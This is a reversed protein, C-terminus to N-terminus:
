VVGLLEVAGVVAVPRMGDRKIQARVASEDGYEAYRAYKRARVLDGSSRAARHVDGLQRMRVQSEPLWYDFAGATPDASEDAGLVEEAVQRSVETPARRTSLYGGTRAAPGYAGEPALLEAISRGVLDARNRVAWAAARREERTRGGLESEIARALAECDETTRGERLDPIGVDKSNRFAGEGATVTQDKFKGYAVERLGKKDRFYDGPVVQVSATKPVVTKTSDVAVDLPERGVMRYLKHIGTFRSGVDTVRFVASPWADIIIRQGPPFITPDASVSVYPVKGALHQELTQIPNGLRDHVGGEMKREAATGSVAEYPWYGTLRANFRPLRALTDTSPPLAVPPANVADDIATTTAKSRRAGLIALAGVGAGGGLLLIAGLKRM